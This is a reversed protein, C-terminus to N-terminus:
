DPRARVLLGRRCRACWLRWVPAISGRGPVPMGVTLPRECRRCRPERHRLVFELDAAFADGVGVPQESGVAIPAVELM